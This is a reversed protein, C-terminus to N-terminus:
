KRLSQILALAAREQDPSLNSLSQQRVAQVPGKLTRITLVTRESWLSRESLANAVALAGDPPIKRETVATHYAALKEHVFLKHNVAKEVKRCDELSFELVTSSVKFTGDKEIVEFSPRYLGAMFARQQVDETSEITQDWVKRAAAHWGEYQNITFTTKSSVEYCTMRKLDLVLTAQDGSYGLAQDGVFVQRMGIKQGNVHLVGTVQFAEPNVPPPQDQANLSGLCTLLIISALVRM